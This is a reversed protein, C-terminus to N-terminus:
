FGFAILFKPMARIGRYDAPCEPNASVASNWEYSSRGKRTLRQSPALM